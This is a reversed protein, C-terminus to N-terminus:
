SFSEEIISGHKEFLVDKNMSIHVISNWVTVSTFKVHFVHLKKKTRKLSQMLFQFHKIPCAYQMSNIYQM